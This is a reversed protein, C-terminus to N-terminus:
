SHSLIYVQSVSHMLHSPQSGANKRGEPSIKRSFIRDLTRVFTRSFGCSVALAGSGRFFRLARGRSGALADITSDRLVQRVRSPFGRARSFTGDAFAPIVVGALRAERRERLGRVREIASRSGDARFRSWWRAVFGSGYSWWLGFVGREELGECVGCGWIGGMTKLKKM